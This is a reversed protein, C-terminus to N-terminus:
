ESDEESDSGSDEEENEENFDDDEEDDESNFDQSNINGSPQVPDTNSKGSAEHTAKLLQDPFVAKADVKAKREEALSEDNLGNLNVYHNIKDYFKQDIISFEVETAEPQSKDYYKIILNFTSTTISSYSVSVILNLPIVMLPKKFGYFIFNPLFYLMGDKSGKNAPVYLLSQGQPMTEKSIIPLSRRQFYALIIEQINGSYLEGSEPKILTKITDQTITAMMIELTTTLKPVVVLAWQPKAKDPIPLLFVTEVNSPAISYDPTTNADKRLVVADIALLLDLKKRVPTSISLAPIIIASKEDVVLQKQSEGVEKLKRKKNNVNGNAQQFHNIVAIFSDLTDPFKEISQLVKSKLDEPLVSLISETELNM